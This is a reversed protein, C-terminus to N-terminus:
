LLGLRRQQQEIHINLRVSIWFSPSSGPSAGDAANIIQNIGWNDKLKNPFNKDNIVDEAVLSYTKSYGTPIKRKRYYYIKRELPVDIRPRWGNGMIVTDNRIPNISGYDGYILDIKSEVKIQDYLDIEILNIIDNDNEKKDPFSTSTIIIQTKHAVRSDRSINSIIEISKNKCNNYESPRIHSNDIIFYLCDIKDIYESMIKLDDIYGDDQIDCRYAITQFSSVLEKLQLKLNEEFDDDDVNLIITPIIEKFTKEKKLKLLFNIWNSYGSDANYLKDIQENSLSKEATLDMIVKIDRFCDAAKDIKKNIDGISDKKTKRGRTLEIIPLLGKTSSLNSLGRLESEGTKVLLAYTNNM